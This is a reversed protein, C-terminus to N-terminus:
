SRDTLGYCVSPGLHQPYLDRQFLFRRLEYCLHCKSAYGSLQQYGARQAHDLLGTPGCEVLTSLIPNKRYDFRCWAEDLPTSNANAAIIGVCTGLFINAAGDIHVHGAGLLSRRCDDAAFQECPRAPMLSALKEAARGLMREGRNSLTRAFAAQQEGPPLSGVLVPDALFDRWRVQLGRHHNDEISSQPLGKHNLKDTAHGTEAQHAHSDNGRSRNGCSRNAHSRCSHSENPPREQATSSHSPQNPELIEQAVRAALRVRDIPVFQQHYIDTSIQLKSMGLSKLEELRDRTLKEDTCWYANTEVKELGSLGEAQAARLLGTLRDYDGFPEGGTIHVRGRDGALRRIGRWCELALDITMETRCNRAQPGSFVYCCACSSSCWYSLMLGASRWLKIKPQDPSLTRNVVNDEVKLAM